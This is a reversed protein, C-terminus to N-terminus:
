DNIHFEKEVRKYRAHRKWTWIFRINRGSDMGLVMPILGGIKSTLVACEGGRVMLHTDRQKQRQRESVRILVLLFFHGWKIYYTVIYSPDSRPCITYRCSLDFFFFFM